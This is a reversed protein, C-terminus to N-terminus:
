PQPMSFNEGATHVPISQQEKGFHSKKHVALHNPQMFAKSCVSCIYSRVTTHTRRHVMLYCLRDFSKDCFSCAFPKDGHERLHNKLTGPSAFTEECHHCVFCNGRIHLQMHENKSRFHAFARDCVPCVFSKKNAHTVLHIDLHNSQKFRSGCERCAFPREGTHVRMHVELNQRRAFKKDCITCSFPQEASHIKLHLKLTHSSAFGKQCQTCTLLKKRSHTQLHSKLYGASAFTRQCHPCVAPKQHVGLHTTLTSESSLPQNGHSNVVNGTSQNIVSDTRATLAQKATAPPADQFDTREKLMAGPTPFATVYKQCAPSRNNSTLPTTSSTTLACIMTRSNLSGPLM